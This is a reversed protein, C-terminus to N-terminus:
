TNISISVRGCVVQSIKLMYYKLTHSTMDVATADVIPLLGHFMRQVEVDSKQVKLACLEHQLIQPLPTPIIKMIIHSVRLIGEASSCIPLNPYDKFCQFRPGEEVENFHCDKKGSEELLIGDPRPFFHRRRQTADTEM